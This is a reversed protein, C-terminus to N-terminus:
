HRADYREMSTEKVGDPKPDYPNILRALAMTLGNAEGVDRKLPEMGKNVRRMIRDVRADLDRWIMQAISLGANPHLVGHLVEIILEGDHRRLPIRHNLPWERDERKFTLVLECWPPVAGTDHDAVTPIYAEVEDLTCLEILLEAVSPLDEDNRTERRQKTREKADKTRQM